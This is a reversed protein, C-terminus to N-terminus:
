SLNRLEDLDLEFPDATTPPYKYPLKSKIQRDKWSQPDLPMIINQFSDCLIVNGKSFFELIIINNDTHIELIRDFKYQRIDRIKQGSLNKRLFMCFSPPETPADQKTKTLYVKSKDAYLLLNKEEKSEPSYIEFIFQYGDIGHYQYVKKFIGGALHKLLEKKLFKLDLSSIGSKDM